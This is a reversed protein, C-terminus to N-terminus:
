QGGKDGEVGRETIDRDFGEGGPEGDAGYSIVQYKKGDQKLAYPHDWPDKLRSADDIYALDNNKPDPQLLDELSNPMKGRKFRYDELARTIESCGAQARTQRSEDVKSGVNTAVLTILIGLIAIVVMLEMLTFGHVRPLRNRTRDM